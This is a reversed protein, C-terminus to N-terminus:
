ASFLCWGKYCLHEPKCINNAKVTFPVIELDNLVKLGHVKVDADICYATDALVPTAVAVGSPLSLLAADFGGM